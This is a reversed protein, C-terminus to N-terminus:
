ARVRGVGSFRAGYWPGLFDIIEVGASPNSASVMKGNGIYMAVHHASGGFYFVLDGPKIQSVPVRTTQRWQSYSLHALNVGARKWAAMTLGSCDFTSPGATAAVYRRGVMSLAYKLASQARPSVGPFANPRAAAASARQAAARQRAAEAAQLAALRRREASQLSALVSQAKALQADVDKLAKAKDASAAQAAQEKDSIEKQTQTVRLKATQVRRLAAVESSQLQSMVAAQSLFQTPDDALLVQLSPDFSGRMYAARAMASITATERALRKQQTKQKASIAALQARIEDLTIQAANAKETAAEAEMQLDQVERQVQRIDRTPAALAPTQAIPLM